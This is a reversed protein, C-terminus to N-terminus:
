PTCSIAKINSENFKNYQLIKVNKNRAHMLLQALSKCEWINESVDMQALSNLYSILEAANVRQIHNRNLHLRQLKDLSVLMSPEFVRIGNGALDLERLESLGEFMGYHLDRLFNDSLDLDKLYQMNRFLGLPIRYLRNCALNLSCLNEAFKFSDEYLKSIQNKSIDLTILKGGHFIGSPLEIVHNATLSLHQVHTNNLFGPRLVRLFNNDLKIVDCSTFAKSAIEQIRNFRLDLSRLGKIKSLAFSDISEIRSHQLMLNGIEMDVNSLTNWQLVPLNCTVCYLYNYRRIPGFYYNSNVADATAMISVIFLIFM